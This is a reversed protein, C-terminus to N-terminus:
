WHYMGQCSRCTILPNIVVPNNDNQNTGSIEHGLILPPIRRDDHAMIPM